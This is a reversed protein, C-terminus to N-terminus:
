KTARATRTCVRFFLSGEFECLNEQRRRRLALVLPTHWKFSVLMELEQFHESFKNELTNSVNKWGIINASDTLLTLSLVSRVRHQVTSSVLLLSTINNSFLTVGLHM